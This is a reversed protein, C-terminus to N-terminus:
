LSQEKPPAAPSSRPIGSQASPTYSKEAPCSFVSVKWRNAPRNATIAPRSSRWPRTRSEPFRILKTARLNARDPSRFRLRANRVRNRFSAENNIRRRARHPTRFHRKWEPRSSQTIKRHNWNARPQRTKRCNRQSTPSCGPSVFLTLIPNRRPSQPIKKRRAPRQRVRTGM